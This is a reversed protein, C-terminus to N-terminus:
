VQATVENLRAFVCSNAYLASAVAAVSSRVDADQGMLVTCASRQELQSLIGNVARASSPLTDSYDVPASIPCYGANRVTSKVEDAANELFVLRTKSNCAMWVAENAREIEELTGETGASADVRLAIASGSVTIHRLLDDGMALAAKDFLFTATGGYLGMTSLLAESASVDSVAFTFYVRRENGGEPNQTGSSGGTGHTKEYQSYRTAMPTAAADIFKSDSLVASSDKIRVLYGNTVKIYSYQLGFFAAVTDIPLFAVDGRAIAAGTYLNDDQDRITGAALDAILVQQSKAFTAIRKERNYSCFIGLEKPVRGDDIATHPIYLVGSSWFPMTEDNLNLVTDNVSTFYVTPAACSFPPFVSLLMMVSLLLCAFKKGKRM